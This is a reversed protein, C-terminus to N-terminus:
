GQQLSIVERNSTIEQNVDNEMLISSATRYEVYIESASLFVLTEAGSTPSIFDRDIEAITIGDFISVIRLVTNDRQVRDSYDFQAFLYTDEGRRIYDACGSAVYFVESAIGELLDFYQYYKFNGDGIILRLIGDGLDTVDPYNRMNEGHSLVDQGSWIEYEYFAGAVDEPTVDKIYFHDSNNIYRDPRLGSVEVEDRLDESQEFYFPPEAVATSDSRGPKHQTIGAIMEIPPPTSLTREAEKDQTGFAVKDCSTSGVVLLLISFSLLISKKM